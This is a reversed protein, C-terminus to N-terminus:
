NDKFRLYNGNKASILSEECCASNYRTNESLRKIQCDLLPNGIPQQGKRSIYRGSGYKLREKLYVM